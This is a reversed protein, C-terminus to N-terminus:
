HMPVTLRHLGRTLDVDLCHQSDQMKLNKVTHGSGPITLTHLFDKKKVVNKMSQVGSQIM